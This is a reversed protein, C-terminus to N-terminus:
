FSFVCCVNMWRPSVLRDEVVTCDDSGGGAATDGYISSVAGLLDPPLPLNRSVFGLARILSKAEQARRRNDLPLLELPPQQQQQPQHGAELQAVM